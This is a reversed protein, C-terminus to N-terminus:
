KRNEVVVFAIRKSLPRCEMITVEDGDKAKMCPPAHALYKSTRKEYREFKPVYKLYEREVVITGQMKSSVVTGNLQTGRVPLTGHWPCYEDDCREEPPSVDLGIDNTEPSDAAEKVKDAM